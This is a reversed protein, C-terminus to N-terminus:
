VLPIVLFKLILLDFTSKCIFHLRHKQSSLTLPSPIICGGLKVSLLATSLKSLFSNSKKNIPKIRTSVIASSLNFIRVRNNKFAYYPMGCIIIFKMGLESLKITLRDLLQGTAAFDPPFFQSILTLKKM